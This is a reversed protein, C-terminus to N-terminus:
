RINLGHFFRQVSETNGSQGYSFHELGIMRATVVLNIAALSEVDVQNGVTEGFFGELTLPPALVVSPRFLFLGDGGLAGASFTLGVQTDALPPPSFIADSM